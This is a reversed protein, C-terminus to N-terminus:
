KHRSEHVETTPHEFRICIVRSGVVIHNPPFSDVLPIQM